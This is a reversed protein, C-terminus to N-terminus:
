EEEFEISGFAKELEDQSLQVLSFDSPTYGDTDPSQCNNILPSRLITDVVQALKAITQHEFLQKPTLELGAQNLRAILQIGIVSDGGLEFFNDYIGVFEIGLLQQWIKAITQEVENRPAVYTNQLNPRSHLSNVTEPKSSEQNQLSAGKLWQDIRAQLNGTSIIIQPVGRLSLVRQFVELGEDPTIVLESAEPKISLEDAASTLWNDWNVAIWPISNTQNHKYTFADTFHHTAPYAAMGLKGLISALSSTLLCFDLQKGQLIKELVFIGQVTPRFQQECEARSIGQITGSLTLGAAHVLGHIQGFCASAQTIAAQMQTENAVDAEIVLVEAGLAELAQVKQIRDSIDNQVSHSTLWQEWEQKKPLGSRGILVLKARPTQALYKAVLLGIGGLGGTILYVGGERLQKNATLTKDLHVAEFTQVWRYNGRYSVVLDSPQMIRLEGLLQNILQNGQFSGLKPTVIDISRCTIHPSEQPIVKCAGLVTVKEPCLSEEGTVEHVNNTVVAIALADQHAQRGFAQVLFLLSYFGLNQCQQFFEIGSQTQTNPTISWFHAIRQPLQNERRLATLLLEYDGQQQPNITYVSESLKTFKEGVIVTIVDQNEQELQKAVQSGVGCTDAFVLWRSRQEALEGEKFSEVLMSRKWSPIYFWDALNSKKGLKMQRYSTDGTKVPPEVWYRQREFPYTPLPLRYRREQAYFSSWDVPVGFLWLRGLTKLLFAMDSQSDQPHRMSALAVLEDQKHQKALTSLTRGPGVELLICNPEQLLKQVGEGFLVTQRLQQAWYSPNTAQEATIWNGTVNSIFPIQPYNRNVKSVEQTYSELISDMMSSHFAHSTHLRRCNIGQETLQAQLTDIAEITGSVVCSSPSNSAALSLSDELLAGPLKTKAKEIFPLFVEKGGVGNGTGQERNGKLLSQVESKSLSVALMAGVPLQQMLRGRIAVLALATELSFVGALCAAVYEGISHGITAQPRIGWAMWLQALAYEIVFLAPQTIETQKLQQAAAQAQEASPYLITHIDLGLHPKLLECCRDVYHRFIPETQYLEWGMNAYQVGQGPFMFVLSRHCPEQFHTFVQQSKPTELAKVADDVTQCVLMRRHNFSRRGVQLTYAVDALNLNPHQKLYDVLNATATELASSTKASLVLLKQARGPKSAEVTPAEELIVHANTGGIGFSSVGARRPIKGHNWASLQANVYFPSNGFDIEPNPKEFHLSPPLLQHKLALVTKILGTVGAAAGLHGFNTKVSGIACFNRKQTSSAFVKQLATIEIPDGLPTGTGHTEIYSITEPEVGALAQAEAIAQAQGEVSPATYGIKLAGDNNIASSKIVAHICDGDAIADELRKLVVIGVGNGAVTGQAKADFARCYGDPSFIGGTEYRYGSKQPVNISVGGALTMDSEGNLLSQCAFHVAVLSTSCATQVTVSPGKLNLKYSVLTSLFDKDNGIEMRFSSESNLFKQNQYLNFLFYNNFDLGAYVGIRGAYTESNYGVSELVEWAQELFVRHQPDMMEAERPSFGFFSADFLEVDELIGGAKVYNSDSFVASEIGSSILEEDTFSSISEVGDRLNQWFQDINKAGPFRGAMGIIAIEELHSFTDFSSM